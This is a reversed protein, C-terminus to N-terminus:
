RLSVLTNTIGTKLSTVAAGPNGLLRETDAVYVARARDGRVDTPFFIESRSKSVDRALQVFQALSTGTGTGLHYEIFGRPMLLAKELAMLISQAADEVYIFDRYENKNRIEIKKNDLLDRLISPVFKEASDGPGYLHFMKLNLFRLPMSQSVLEAWVKFNRKATAYIPLTTSVPNDSYFSDINIFPIERQAALDLLSMPLAENVWFPRLLTKNQGRGYNTAMHIICAVGNPFSKDPFVCHEDVVVTPGAGLGGGGGHRVVRILNVGAAEAVRCFHRGLFGTSGTVLATIM